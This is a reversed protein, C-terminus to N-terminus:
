ADWTAFAMQGIFAPYHVTEDWDALELGNELLSVIDIFRSRLTDQEFDIEVQQEGVWMINRPNIGRYYLGASRSDAALLAAFFTFQELLADAQPLPQGSMAFTQLLVSDIQRLFYQTAENVALEALVISQVEHGLRGLVQAYALTDSAQRLLTMVPATHQPVRHLHDYLTTDGLYPLIAISLPETATLPVIALIAGVTCYPALCRRFYANMRQEVAATLQRTGGYWKLVLSFGEGGDLRTHVVYIPSKSDSELRIEDRPIAGAGRAASIAEVQRIADPSVRAAALVERRYMATLVSQYGEAGVLPLLAELNKEVSGERIMLYMGRRLKELGEAYEVTEHDSGILPALYANLDRGRVGPAHGEKPMGGFAELKDWVARNGSIVGPYDMFEGLGIVNKMRRLQLLERRELRRGSTEMETAPVCSPAALFLDMPMQRAVRLAQKLGPVGCVNAIEHLDSVGALIGRPVVARTYEGVNLYSSELHFHGDILGPTLYRGGIDMVRKGDTYNGVGAIKGQHIAVGANEIEGTFTNVVRGNVIVLDAPAEGRAVKILESLGM